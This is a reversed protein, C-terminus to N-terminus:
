KSENENVKGKHIEEEVPFIKFAATHSKILKKKKANSVLAKARARVDRAHTEM